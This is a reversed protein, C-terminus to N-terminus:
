KENKEYEEMAEMALDVAKELIQEETLNPELSLLFEYKGKDAEIRKEEKCPRIHIDSEISVQSIHIDEISCVCCYVGSGSVSNANKRDVYARHEVGDASKYVYLFGTLIYVNDDEFFKSKGIVLSNLQETTM